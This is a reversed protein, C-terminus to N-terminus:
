ASELIPYFESKPAGCEPCEWDDPLDEFATGPAINQTQDGKEPDYIFDCDGCIYKLVTMEKGLELANVGRHGHGVKGIGKDLGECWRPLGLPRVM